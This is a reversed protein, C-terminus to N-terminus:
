RLAIEAMQHVDQVRYTWEEDNWDWVTIYEGVHIARDRLNTSEFREGVISPKDDYHLGFDIKGEKSLVFPFRAQGLDDGHIGYIPWSGMVRDNHDILLDFIYPRETPRDRRVIKARVYRM